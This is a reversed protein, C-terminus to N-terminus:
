KVIVLLVDVFLLGRLNGLGAEFAKQAFRRQCLGRSIDIAFGLQKAGIM